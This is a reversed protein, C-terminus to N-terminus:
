VVEWESLVFGGFKRLRHAKGLYRHVVITGKDDSGTLNLHAGHIDIPGPSREVFQCGNDTFATASPVNPIGDIERVVGEVSVACNNASTAFRVAGAILPAAVASANGNSVLGKVLLRIGASTEKPSASLGAVVRGNLTAFALINDNSLLSHASWVDLFEHFKHFVGSYLVPYQGVLNVPMNAVTKCVIEVGDARTMQMSQM